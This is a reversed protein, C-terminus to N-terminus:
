NQFLLIHLILLLLFDWFVSIMEKDLSYSFLIMFLWKEVHMDM